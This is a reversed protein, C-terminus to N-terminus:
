ARGSDEITDVIKAKSKKLPPLLEKEIKTTKPHEDVGKMKEFAHTTGLLGAAGALATTTYPMNKAVKLLKAGLGSKSAEAFLEPDRLQLFEIFTTM